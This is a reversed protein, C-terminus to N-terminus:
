ERREALERYECSANSCFWGSMYRLREQPKRANPDPTLIPAKQRYELSGGCEPCTREYALHRKKGGSVNVDEPLGPVPAAPAPGGQFSSIARSSPSNAAKQAFHLLDDRSSERSLRGCAVLLRAVHERLVEGSVPRALFMDAGAKISLEADQPRTVGTLVIIPVNTTRTHIRLRRTLELGSMSGPSHGETVVMDTPRTTAIQYGLATPAAGVVRYGSARLSRAYVEREDLFHSVLLIASTRLARIAM